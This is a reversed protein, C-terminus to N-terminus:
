PKAEGPQAAQEPTSKEVAGMHRSAMTVDFSASVCEGPRLVISPKLGRRAEEERLVEMMDRAENAVAYKRLAREIQTESFGTGAWEKRGVLLLWREFGLPNKGYGGYISGNHSGVACALLWPSLKSTIQEANQPVGGSRVSDYRRVLWMGFSALINRM